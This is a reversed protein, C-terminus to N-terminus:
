AETSCAVPHQVLIMVKTGDTGAQLATACIYLDATGPASEFPAAIVKGDNDVSLAEGEDISGGCEVKVTSFPGAVEAPQGAANPDNMLVGVPIQTNGDSIASVEGPNSASMRVFRHQSSSLDGSAVMGPIINEM